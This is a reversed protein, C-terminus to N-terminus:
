SLHETIESYKARILVDVLAQIGDVAKASGVWTRGYKDCFVVSCEDLWRYTGTNIWYLSEEEVTMKRYTSHCVGQEDLFNSMGLLYRNDIMHIPIVEEVPIGNYMLKSKVEMIEVELGDFSVEKVGKKTALYNAAEYARQWNAQCALIQLEKDESESYRKLGKISMFVEIPVLKCQNSLLDSVIDMYFPFLHFGGRMNPVRGILLHGAYDLAFKTTQPQEQIRWNVLQRMSVLDEPITFEPKNYM